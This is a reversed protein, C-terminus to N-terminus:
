TRILSNNFILIARFLPFMRKVYQFCKKRGVSTLTHFTPYRGFPSGFYICSASLDVHCSSNRSVKRDNDSTEYESSHRVFFTSETHSFFTEVKEHLLSARCYWCIIWFEIDIINNEEGKCSRRPRGNRKTFGTAYITRDKSRELCNKKLHVTFQLNKGSGINRLLYKWMASKVKCTTNRINNQNLFHGLDTSKM